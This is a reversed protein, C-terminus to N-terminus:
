FLADLRFLRFGNIRFPPWLRSRVTSAPKYTPIFTGLLGGKFNSFIDGASVHVSTDFGRIGVTGHIGPIWLYGLGYYHWKNDTLEADSSAFSSPGSPTQAATATQSPASGTQDQAGLDVPQQAIAPVCLLALSGAIALLCTKGCSNM